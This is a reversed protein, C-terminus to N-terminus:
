LKGYRIGKEIETKLSEFAKIIAQNYGNDPSERVIKSCRNIAMYAGMLVHEELPEGCKCEYLRM